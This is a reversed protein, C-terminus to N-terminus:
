VFKADLLLSIHKIVDVNERKLACFGFLHQILEHATLQLAVKYADICDYFM